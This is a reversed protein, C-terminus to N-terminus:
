LVRAFVTGACTSDTWLVHTRGGFSTAPCFYSVSMRAPIKDANTTLLQRPDGIESASRCGHRTRIAINFHERMQAQAVSRWPSNADIVERSSDDRQQVAISTQRIARGGSMTCTM